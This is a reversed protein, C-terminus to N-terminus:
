MSMGNNNYSNNNTIQEPSLILVSSIHFYRKVLLRAKEANRGEKGVVVGKKKSDVVVIAQTTGDMKKNIKIEDIMSSNLINRLFANVDESYEVLEIRRTIVSQLQKITAGGKGIALGMQGKNVVFIVRDMKEDVICDRATANTISQFLSILRLEDSTLKIRDNM